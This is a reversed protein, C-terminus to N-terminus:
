ERQSLVRLGTLIRLPNAAATNHYSGEIELEIADCQAAMRFCSIDLNNRSAAPNPDDQYRLIPQVSGSGDARIRLIPRVAADREAAQIYSSADGVLVSGLKTGAAWFNVLGAVWWSDTAAWQLHAGIAVWIYRMRPEWPVALRHKHGVTVPAGPAGTGVLDWRRWDEVSHIVDAM